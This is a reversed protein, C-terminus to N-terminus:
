TQWILPAGKETRRKSITFPNFLARARNGIRETICTTELAPAVIRVVHIPLRTPSLDIAVVRDVGEHSLAHIAATLDSAIDDSSGDTLEALSVRDAPMDVQWRNQPFTKLRRTHARTNAAEEPRLIDDRAGQIDTVRSQVAETIARVIAHEPSCSCGLGLHVMPPDSAPEIATALAVLPLAGEELILVRLQLGASNCRSVLADVNRRGSPLDLERAHAEDRAGVGRFFQPVLSCRVHMLSWVDREILESLAHYVAETLTNGSALGNSTSFSFIAEGHWPCQVLAMPVPVVEGSVVDTGWACDVVLDRADPLVGLADLDLYDRVDRLSRRHTQIPPAAGAQREVAEMVASAMAADRTLGKGNYVSLLDPSNPVIACYTPIGTRDLHTTEGIRTIGFRRKLEPILALTQALPVSRDFSGPAKPEFQPLVM